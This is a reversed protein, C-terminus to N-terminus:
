KLLPPLCTENARPNSPLHCLTGSAQIALYSNASTPQRVQCRLHCGGLELLGHCAHVATVRLFRLIVIREELRRM